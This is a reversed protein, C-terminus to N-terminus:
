VGTNDARIIGRLCVCLKWVTFHVEHVQRNASRRELVDCLVLLADCLIQIADCLVVDTCIADSEEPSRQARM